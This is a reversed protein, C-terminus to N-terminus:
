DSPEPGDLESWNRGEAAWAEAISLAELALDHAGHERDAALATLRQDLDAM